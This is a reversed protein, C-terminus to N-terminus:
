RENRLWRISAVLAVASGALFMMPLVLTRWNREREQEVLVNDVYVNTEATVPTGIVWLAAMLVLFGSVIVLVRRLLV